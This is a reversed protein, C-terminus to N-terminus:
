PTRGGPKPAPPVDGFVARDDMNLSDGAQGNPAFAQARILVVHAMNALALTDGRLIYGQCYRTRDDVFCLDTTSFYGVRWRSARELPGQGLGTLPGSATGDSNLVLTDTGGANPYVRVWAGVLSDPFPNHTQGSEDAESCSILLATVACSAVVRKYRSMDSVIM